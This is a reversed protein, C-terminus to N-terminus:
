IITIKIHYHQQKLIKNVVVRTTLNYLYDIDMQLWWWKIMRAQDLILEECVFVWFSPLTNNAATISNIDIEFYRSLRSDFSVVIKHYCIWFLFFINHYLRPTITCNWPWYLLDSSWLLEINIVRLKYM